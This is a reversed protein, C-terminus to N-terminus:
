SAFMYNFLEKTQKQKHFLTKKLCYDIIFNDIYHEGVLTSLSKFDVRIRDFSTIVCPPDHPSSEFFSFLYKIETDRPTPKDTNVHLWTMEEKFDHQM